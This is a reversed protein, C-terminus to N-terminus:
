KRDRSNVQHLVDSAHTHSDTLGSAAGETVTLGYTVSKAGDAGAVTSFVGAFSGTTSTQTIDPATGADPNTSTTLHTESLTLTPENSAVVSISPGDDTIVLKAGLDISATRFDNDNDTITATLQVANAAFSPSAEGTDPNSGTAQDVARAETFTVVGTAANVTITFASRFLVRRF